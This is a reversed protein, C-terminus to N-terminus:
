LTFNPLSLRHNRHTPSPSSPRQTLFLFSPRGARTSITRTLQTVGTVDLEFDRVCSPATSDRLASSPDWLVYSSVFDEFILSETKADQAVVPGACM